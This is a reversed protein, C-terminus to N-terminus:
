APGTEILLNGRDDRRARAGPPVVITSDYEDILLPGDAWDDLDARAVVPTSISGHSGFYAVREGGQAAAGAPETRGPLGTGGTRGIGRVAIVEIPNDPDSRHGYLREHEEEFDASLRPILEGDIAGPLEIRIESAQGKFRMDVSCLLEVEEGAFGESGFREELAADIEGRIAALTEPTLQEGSLLCSRVEHHEVGSCLLGVASFLGPNPPVIVTAIALESALGAAHVPGAGGFAILAFDRPDRGRETSVSRLARMTRANAIRHIGEAAAPLDLGLPSAIRDAIVAAAAEPDIRVEGDALAGPRIYGLAVDADTLTPEAGGRGYCVPGPVAGASRPGVRLGGAADLFAISGGGAGVEAIDLSPARILEGGGGMLRSGASLTSGVEYEPSYGVRGGEIMSAKATTGGMDLTIVNDIGGAEAAAAAALVGAAPGSELVFVPREAADAEPTLGGASQMILLPADCGIARLGDGLAGLYGKMVPRVYANVVTTATREYEKREPLVQHSLSVPVGPLERTLFDGVAQEHGPHAYSHLLCVAVSEIEEGLLRERVTRLEDEVLPRLVEGDAAVRESLELRLGREVLQPPKDWFLDYIQPARIRRLELVDRFGGTTVLATRAGRRELVANTAVTTGHAVEGVESAATGSRELLLRAADLVAREFDPPTSPVKHTWVSGRGDVLVVDTFTGGVDASVRVRGNASATGSSGGTSASSAFPETM